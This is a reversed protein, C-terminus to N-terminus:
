DDGGTCIEVEWRDRDFKLYFIGGLKISILPLVAAAADEAGRLCGTSLLNM